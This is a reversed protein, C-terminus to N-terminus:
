KNKLGCLRPIYRKWFTVPNIVGKVKNPKIALVQQRLKRDATVVQVINRTSSSLIPTTITTTTATTTTSHHHNKDNPNEMARIENLIFDDALLGTGLTVKQFTGYPNLIEITTEVVQNSNNNINTMTSSSSSSSPLPQSVNDVLPTSSEITATDDDVPITMPSSSSSSTDTTSSMDSSPKTTTSKPGDFVLIITNSRPEVVQSLKSTLTTSNNPTGTHGLVNYGDIYFINTGKLNEQYRVKPTGTNSSSSTALLYLVVPKFVVIISKM